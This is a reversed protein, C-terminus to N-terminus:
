GQSKQRQDPSTEAEVALSFILGLERGSSLTGRALTARGQQIAAQSQLAAAQRGPAETMPSSLIRLGKRATAM